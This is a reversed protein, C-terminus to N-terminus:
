APPSGLRERHSDHRDAFRLATVLVIAVLPYTFQSDFLVSASLSQALMAIFVGFAAVPAWEEERQRIAIRGLLVVLVGLALGVLILGVLGAYIGVWAVGNHTAYYQLKAWEVSLGEQPIGLGHGFPHHWASSLGTRLATVREERTGAGVGGALNPDVISSMRLLVRALFPWATNWTALAVVAAVLGVFPAASRFRRWLTEFATYTRSGLLAVGVVGVALGLLDGRIYTSVTAAVLVLCVVGMVRRKLVPGDGIWAYSLAIVAGYVYWEMASWWGYGRSLVDSGFWVESMANHWQWGMIRALFAYAAAVTALFVVMLLINRSSRRDRILQWLLFFSAYHFVVRGHFLVNEPPNGELVGLLLPYALAFALVLVPTTGVPMALDLPRVLAVLIAAMLVIGFGIDIWAVRLTDMQLNGLDDLPHTLMATVLLPVVAIEPWGLFGRDESVVVPARRTWSLKVQSDMRAGEISGHSM